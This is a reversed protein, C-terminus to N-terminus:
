DRRGYLGEYANRFANQAASGSLNQDKVVTKWLATMEDNFRPLREDRRWTAEITCHCHDHVKASGPGFFRPDSEAFSDERYVPGRSALMACFSCCGQRANRYYAVALRDQQFANLMFSRGGALALGSGSGELNTKALELAGAVTHKGEELAQLTRVRGTIDLVATAREEDFPDADAGTFLAADPLQAIRQREYYIAATAASRQHYDALTGLMAAIFEESMSRTPVQGQTMAVWRAAILKALRDALSAQATRHREALTAM